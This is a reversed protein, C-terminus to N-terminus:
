FIPFAKLGWLVVAAYLGAGYDDLMVGWGRPLRELLNVPFVKTVDFFRFAAFAAVFEWPGAAALGLGGFALLQGLTEDMVIIQPDKLGTEAIVVNAAWVSFPLLLFALGALHWGTFFLFHQLLFALLLGVLAGATGPAKPVFGAYFSTSWAEALASKM